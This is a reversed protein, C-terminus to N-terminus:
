RTIYNRKFFTPFFVEVIPFFPARWPFAAFRVPALGTLLPTAFWTTAFMAQGIETVPAPLM